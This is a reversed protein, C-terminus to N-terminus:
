TSTSYSHSAQSKRKRGSWRAKKKKKADQKKYVPISIMRLEEFNAEAYTPYFSIKREELLNKFHAISSQLWFDVKDGNDISLLLDEDAVLEVM